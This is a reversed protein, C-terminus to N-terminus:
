AKKRRHRLWGGLGLLPMGTLALVLGAPAPATVRTSGSVSTVDNGAAITLENSLYYGSGRTFITSVTNPAANVGTNPDFTQLNGTTGTFATGTNNAWSQFTVTANGTSSQSSDAIKSTLIMNQGSSGPSTFAATEQVDIILKGTGTSTASSVDVQALNGNTSSGPQNSTATIGVSTFTTGGFTFTPLPNASGTGASASGTYEALVGSKKGGDMIYVDVIIASARAGPPAALFAAAVLAAALFSLRFRVM